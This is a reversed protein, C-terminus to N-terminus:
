NESQNVNAQSFPYVLTFLKTLCGATDNLFVIVQIKETQVKVFVDAPYGNAIQVSQNQGM